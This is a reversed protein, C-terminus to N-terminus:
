VILMADGYSYFRYKKDIAQSYAEMILEKGGLACVMMLLTSKPLHFNTMMADVLQFNYPPRIFLDTRGECPQIGSHRAAMSELTRVSTSGVAVIRRNEERAKRLQEATEESVVFREEDMQHDEVHEAKVPRFTGPGVHLTVSATHISKQKLNGLLHNTLHLGATPAAVAGPHKAYVTQYRATDEQHAAADPYSRRIYPPLPPEGNRDLFDLFPEECTVRITARGLEGDEIMEAEACGDGLVLQHGPAPRRSAKMLVEWVDDGINEIFLLEVKGGSAKKRGFVRAPIVKTNNIVLLDGSQLLDPLDAVRYHEIAQETRKVLLLRADERDPAPHQAILEEPLSYDFDSTKM